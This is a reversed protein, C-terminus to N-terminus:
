ASMNKKVAYMVADADKIIQDADAQDGLFLRLGVSTTVTHQIAGLTFPQVFARYVKDIMSVAIGKAKAADPGLGEVLVVFEDGALRAVTDTDRVVGCLRRGVEILLLDGVDHGHRDNLEKFRNLDLYLLAAYSSERKSSRVAQNLRDLLLRRNPLQTLADHYAMERLENELKKRSTQDSFQVLLRKEGHIVTPLMHYSLWLEKGWTTVLHVENKRPTDDNLAALADDLMGSQRWSELQRFNLKLMTDQDAGVMDALAQNALICQGDEAYVSMPAPSNTLIDRNFDLAESLHQTRENVASELNRNAEKLERRANDLRVRMTNMSAILRGLEDQHPYAIAISDNSAAGFEIRSVLESLQNLPRALVRSIVFIFILWLGATKVISNVLIVLFSHQVRNVVVSRSSYLSFSGLERPGLPTQHVLPSTRSQFPAFVGTGDSPQPTPTEGASAVTKGDKNVVQVGTVISSQLLGDVMLQLQAQDLEWLTKTVSDQFSEGLTALDRGVSRSVANFELSLQVVTVLLALAVYSGFVLRFLRGSLTQRFNM